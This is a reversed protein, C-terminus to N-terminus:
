LGCGPTTQHVFDPYDGQMLGKESVDQPAGQKLLFAEGRRVPDVEMPDRRM